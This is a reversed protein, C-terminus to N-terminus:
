KLHWFRHQLKGDKDETIVVVGLGENPETSLRVVKGEVDYGNWLIPEGKPAVFDIGNHAKLGLKQYKPLMQKQTKAPGFGQSILNPKVPRRIQM